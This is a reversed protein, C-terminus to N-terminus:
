KASVVSLPSLAEFSLPYPTFSLTVKCIVENYRMWYNYRM